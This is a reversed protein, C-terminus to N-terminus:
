GTPSRCATPQPPPGHANTVWYFGNHHDLPKFFLPLLLLVLSSSSQSSHAFYNFYNLHLHACIILFSLITFLQREFHKLLHSILTSYTQKPCHEVTFVTKPPLRSESLIYYDFILKTQHRFRCLLTFSHM